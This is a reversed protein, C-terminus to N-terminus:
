PETPAKATEGSEAGDDPPIFRAPLILSFLWQLTRVSVGIVALTAAVWPPRSARDPWLAKLAARILKPVLWYLGLGYWLWPHSGLVNTLWTTFANEGAQEM